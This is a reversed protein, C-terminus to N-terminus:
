SERTTSAANVTAQETQAAVHIRVRNVKQPEADLVTFRVGAQEFETGKPPIRGVTTSVYGGLTEYGADEPLNLGMLRNLDEIRIRADAEGTHDDLKRFM